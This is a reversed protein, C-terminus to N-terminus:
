RNVVILRWLPYLEIEVTIEVSGDSLVEKTDDLVRAGQMYALMRTRITDNETVFDQVTTDSEIFLGGLEEALKRRADLEAARFAMLRAQAENDMDEDIAAMGVARHIDHVWGPPATIMGIVGVVADTDGKLYREPPVGMGTESLVRDRTEVIIEELAEIRVDDGDIETEAWALVSVLVDRLTVEVEVEVILENDHYRVRTERVGRLFTNTALDIYDSQAVFDRVTTESDIVVGGIREALRRIGEVRAARVAMLRGQATCHADWFDGAPGVLYARSDASGVDSDVDIMEEEEPMVGMGTETLVKRENTLTMEDFDDIEIADGHYYHDHISRLNIIVTEITVEMVLECSGDDYYKPDGKERVGTLFATMATDIRDSEAVFDAVTTESTINLGKIREALKRIGDARAARYALLKRQALRQHEVADQAWALGGALVAACAVLIMVKRM